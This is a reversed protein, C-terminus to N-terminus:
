NKIRKDSCFGMGTKWIKRYRAIGKAWAEDSCGAIDPDKGASTAIGRDRAVAHFLEEIQPATLKYKETETWTSNYRVALGEAYFSILGGVMQKFRKKNWKGTIGEELSQGVLRQRGERVSGTGDRRWSRIKPDDIANGDLRILSEIATDDGQRARRM